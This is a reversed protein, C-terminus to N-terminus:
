TRKQLKQLIDWQANSDQWRQFTRLLTMHDSQSGESLSRQSELISDEDEGVFLPCSSSHFLFIM